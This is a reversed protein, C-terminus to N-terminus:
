RNELIWMNERAMMETAKFNSFHRGHPTLVYEFFSGFLLTIVDSGSGTRLYFPRIKNPHQPM